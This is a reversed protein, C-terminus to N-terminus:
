IPRRCKGLGKIGKRRVDPISDLVFDVVHSGLKSIERVLSELASGFELQSDAIVTHKVFEVNLLAANIQVVDAMSTLDVLDVSKEAVVREPGVEQRGATRLNVSLFFLRM